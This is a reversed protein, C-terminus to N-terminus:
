PPGGHLLAAEAVESDALGVEHAARECQRQVFALDRSILPLTDVIFWHAEGLAEESENVGRKRCAEQLMQCMGFGRVLCAGTKRDLYHVREMVTQTLPFTLRDLSDFVDDRYPKAKMFHTQSLPATLHEVLADILTRNGAVEGTIQVLVLLRETEDRTTQRAHERTAIDVAVATAQNASKGLRFTVFGLIGTTVVAAFGAGAAWADWIPSCHQSVWWCGFLTELFDM